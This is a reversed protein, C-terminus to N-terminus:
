GYRYMRPVDEIGGYPRIGQGAIFEMIAFSNQSDHVIINSQVIIRSLRIALGRVRSRPTMSCRGAVRNLSGIRIPGRMSRSGIKTPLLAM